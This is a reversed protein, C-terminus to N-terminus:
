LFSGLPLTAYIYIYIVWLIPKSNQSRLFDFFLKGLRSPRSMEVNNNHNFPWLILRERSWEWALLYQISSHMGQMADDWALIIIGTLKFVLFGSLWDMHKHCSTDEFCDISFCQQSAPACKHTRLFTHLPSVELPSCLGHPCWRWHVIILGM